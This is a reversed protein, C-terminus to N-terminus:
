RPEGSVPLKALMRFGNETPGASFEGGYLTVRERMGVIGHGGDSTTLPVRSGNHSRPNTCEIEVSGNRYRVALSATEARSHRVVNTLAEQAIRYASLDETPPLPRIQGEITVEVKIGAGAVQSVLQQLDALGPAPALETQAYDGAQRLVTVLRRLEALSSRSITEIIALAESAREPQDGSLRRAVGSRVSIVSMAHAVADHLERAIRTREEVLTRRAIEREREVARAALDLAYSRRARANEGALWGVLISGCALLVALAATELFKSDWAVLGATVMPALCAVLTWNSLPSDSVAALCYMTFGGALLMPLRMGLGIMTAEAVVSAWLAAEPYRRRAPVSSGAVAVALYSLLGFGAGHPGSTHLDRQAVPVSTAALAVGLLLDLALKQRDTLRRAIRVALGDNV